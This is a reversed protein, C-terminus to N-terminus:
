TVCNITITGITGIIIRITSPMGSRGRFEIAAIVNTSVFGCCSNTGIIWIVCILALLLLLLLLLLIPIPLPM